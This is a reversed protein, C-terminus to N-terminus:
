FRRRVTEPRQRWRRHSWLYQEPYRRIFTEFQRNITELIAITDRERDGTLAFALPESVDMHYRLPGTRVFAGVIVPYGTCLHLRAPSTHICAPRGMFDLWIGHRGAHQDVALGLIRGEGWRKIMAPSFGNRKPYVEIGGRLHSEMFRQVLPNRLTSALVMVPKMAAAVGLGVEWSGLHPTLLLVPQGPTELLARSAEPVNRTINQAAHEPTLFDSVKLGELAHGVFHAVSARALRAAEARDAAVGTRLINEIAVRKRSGALCFFRRGAAAGLPYARHAPLLRLVFWILRVGLYVPYHFIPNM